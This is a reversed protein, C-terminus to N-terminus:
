KLQEYLLSLIQESAKAPGPTGDQDFVEITTGGEVPKLAVQYEQLEDQKNKKKKQKKKKKKTSEEWDAYRIYYTWSSRDRDEVTFGIRDLSLGVRRWARERSDLLNLAPRGAENRGMTAREPPPETSLVAVAQPATVGIHLMLLRLMEAELEPDSPRPKWGTVDLAEKRPTADGPAFVVQEMGRHSLYVETTGPVEGRELRIRYKDLFDAGGIASTVKNFWRQIATGINARNEAWDTELIGAEPREKAIKLGVGQIFDHIQPWLKEAEANVVLWRETGARELKVNDFTPLLDGFQGKSRQQRQAEFGSYTATGSQASSSQPLTSLGPPIELPPLTKADDYDIKKRDKSSCGSALAVVLLGIVLSVAGTNRMIHLDRFDFTNM